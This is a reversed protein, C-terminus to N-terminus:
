QDRFESSQVKFAVSLQAPPGYGVTTVTMLTMYLSDGLSWGEILHFGATGFAISAALAVPSYALRTRSRQSLNKVPSM